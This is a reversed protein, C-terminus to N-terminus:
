KGSALTKTGSSDTASSLLVGVDFSTGMDIRELFFRLFHHVLREQYYAIERNLSAHHKASTVRLSPIGCPDFANFITADNLVNIALGHNVIREKIRLGIFGIKEDGVFVGPGIKSRHANIGLEKLFAIMANELIAILTPVPMQYSDINFIPYLVLQGPEHATMGGGRELHRVLIQASPFSAPSFNQRLIDRGLTIVTEKHSGCGVLLADREHQLRLFGDAM